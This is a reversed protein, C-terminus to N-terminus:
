ESSKQMEIQLYSHMTINDLMKEHPLIKNEIKIKM